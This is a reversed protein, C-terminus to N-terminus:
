CTFCVKSQVIFFIVYIIILVLGEKRVLFNKTRLMAYATFITVLMFAAGIWFALSDSITIPSIVATIGLVLTANIVSAGFLNGLSMDGQKKMASRVGFVLEPLSTGIGIVFMGIFIESLGLKISLNEAGGVMLFSSGILLAVSVMFVAISNKSEKFVSVIGNIAGKTTTILIGHFIKGKLKEKLKFVHVLSWFFLFILIFGDVRTLTGDVLLALPSIVFLVSSIRNLIFDQYDNLKIRGAIFAVLGLILALNVINTGVVNGLSLEPVDNIASNIGVILEPFTTAFSMLVFSIVFSSIGLITGINKLSKVVYASSIWIIISGVGIFAIDTYLSGLM